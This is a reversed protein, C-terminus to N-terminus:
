PQNKPSKEGPFEVSLPTWTEPDGGIGHAFSILELQRPVVRILLYNEREGPYFAEWGDKWRRAKEVPDDVLEATGLLTVYSMTNTDFYYLTVRPDARMQEVKRSKRTTALWVVLNEDPPFADMARARPHGSGDLTILSCVQASNMIERAVEV